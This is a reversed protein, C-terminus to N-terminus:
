TFYSGYQNNPLTLGPIELNKKKDFVEKTISYVSFDM